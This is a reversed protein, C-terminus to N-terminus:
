GQSTLAKLVEVVSFVMAAGTPEMAVRVDAFQATDMADKVAKSLAVGHALADFAGMSALITSTRPSFLPFIVPDQGRLRLRAAQSLSLAQQEYAIVDVCSIGAAGLNHAVDGRTHNGRIHALRGAPHAAIIDRVLGQADGPGTMSRFGADEALQATRAGVCWATLGAPLNLQKAAAVGNASTFIVSDVDSCTVQLPVIKLLPSSIVDLPGDWAQRLATIFRDNQDRPRTMILTPSMRPVM